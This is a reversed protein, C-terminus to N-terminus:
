NKYDKLFNIIKDSEEKRRQIIENRGWKPYQRIKKVTAYKSQEYCVNGDSRHKKEEFSLDGISRNISQELLMLNGIGNQEEPTIGDNEETNATAHIHEIDFYGWTFLNNMEVISTNSEGEDLYASLLCVINKWTAREVIDKKLQESSFTDFDYNDLESYLISLMEDETNQFTARYLKYM